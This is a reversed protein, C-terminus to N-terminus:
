SIRTEWFSKSFNPPQPARPSFHQVNVLGKFTPTRPRCVVPTGAAGLASQAPVNLSSQEELLQKRIVTFWQPQLPRFLINGTPALSGLACAALDKDSTMRGGLLEQSLLFPYLVQQLPEWPVAAGLNQLSFAPTLLCVDRQRVMLILAQICPFAIPWTSGPDMIKKTLQHVPVHLNLTVRGYIQVQLSVGLM